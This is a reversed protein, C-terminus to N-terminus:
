AIALAGGAGARAIAIARTGADEGGVAAEAGARAFAMTGVAKGIVVYCAENPPDQTLSRIM